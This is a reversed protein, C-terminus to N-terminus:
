RVTLEGTPFAPTTCDASIQTCDTTCPVNKGRQQDLVFSSHVTLEAGVRELDCRAEVVRTCSSSYCGDAIVRVSPDGNPASRLCVVGDNVVESREFRSAGEEPEDQTGSSCALLLVLCAARCTSAVLKM